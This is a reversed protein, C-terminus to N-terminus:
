SGLGALAREVDARRPGDPFRRLYMEFAARAARRDGAHVHCVAQGYLARGAVADESEGGRARAFDGAADICRGAAARLEARALAVPRDVATDDLVLRDLAELAVTDRGLALLAEIRTLTAERTLTGAPYRSAYDDLRSLAGSADARDRLARIADAVVAAEGSPAAAESSPTSPPPAHARGAGPARVALRRPQPAVAVSPAAVSPADAPPLPGAEKPPDAQRARPESVRPRVASRAPAGGITAPAATRHFREVAYSAMATAAVGLLLYGAALAWAPTRRPSHGVKERRTSAAARLVGQRLQAVRLDDLPPTSAAVRIAEGIEAELERGDHGGSEAPRLERWRQPEAVRRHRM